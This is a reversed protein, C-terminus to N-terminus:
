GGGARRVTVRRSKIEVYLIRRIYAESVIAIMRHQSLVFM